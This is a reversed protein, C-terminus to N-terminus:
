NTKSIIVLGWGAEGFPLLLYTVIVGGKPSCPPPTVNMSMNLIYLFVLTLAHKKKPFLIFILYSIIISYILKNLAYP